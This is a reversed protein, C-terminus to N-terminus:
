DEVVNISYHGYNGVRANSRQKNLEQTRAKNLVSNPSLYMRKEKTSLVQKKSQKPKFDFVDHLFTNGLLHTQFGGGLFNKFMNMQISQMWSTVRLCESNSLKVSVDPGVGEEIYALVDYFFSRQSGLEKKSTGRGGAEISLDKMQHIVDEYTSRSLNGSVSEFPEGDDFKSASINAREFIIVIGEGAALRVSREDMKLLPILANFGKLCFSDIQEATATTLLFAWSTLAAARVEHNPETIGSAKNAFLAKNYSGVQWLVNLTTDTDEDNGVVFTMIALSKLASVRSAVNTGQKSIRSLHSSSESYIMPALESEGVTIILLGLVRAALSIESAAGKKLISVCQHLLTEGKDVAFDVHIGSMLVKCLGNLGAERTSLRKEYLADLYNDLEATDSRVEDVEPALSLESSEATSVTSLTEDDSAFFSAARRRGKGKGM